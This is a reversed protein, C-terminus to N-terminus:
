QTAAFRISVYTRSLRRSQPAPRLLISLKATDQPLRLDRLSGSVKRMERQPPSRAAACMFTALVITLIVTVAVSESLDVFLSNLTRSPRRLGRFLSVSGAAATYLPVVDASPVRRLEFYFSFSKRM